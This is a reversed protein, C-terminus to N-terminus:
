QKEKTYRLVRSRTENRYQEVLEPHDAGLAKVDVRRTTQWKWSAAKEGGITLLEADGLVSRVWNDIRQVQEDATARTQKWQERQVLAAQLEAPAETGGTAEPWMATLAETTAEHADIEPPEGTVVHETWFKECRAQVFKADSEDLTFEYTRFRLRGFATHLVGFWCRTTGTVLMNWTAQCAYYDPVKEAWSEPTDQTVKWEAVGVARGHEAVIGDITCRMWPQGPHECRNQEGYVGLGTRATFWPGIAAELMKGAEQAESSSPDRPILGVKEAWLSYPSSWPSLGLVAAVDSGGLGSRRWLHWEDDSM